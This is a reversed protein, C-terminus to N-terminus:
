RTGGQGFRPRYIRDSRPENRRPAAWAVRHHHACYPSGDATEHGCYGFGEAKPDGIPWRCTAATLATIPLMLPPPADGAPAPPPKPTPTRARAHRRTAQRTARNMTLAGRPARGMRHMKSIVANRSVGGLAKAIVSASAGDDWMRAAM